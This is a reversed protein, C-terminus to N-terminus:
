LVEEFNYRYLNINVRAAPFPALLTTPTPKVRVSNKFVAEGSFNATVDVNKTKDANFQEVIKQTIPYVTSSGDVKIPQDQQAQNSGCASLLVTTGIAFSAVKFPKLWNILTTSM